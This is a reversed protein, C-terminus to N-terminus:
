TPPRNTSTTAQSGNAQSGTVQSGTAQSSTVTTAAPLTVAPPHNGLRLAALVNCLDEDDQFSDRYILPMAHLLTRLRTACLRHRVAWCCAWINSFCRCM